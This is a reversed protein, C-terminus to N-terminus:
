RLRWSLREARSQKAAASEAFASILLEAMEERVVVRSVNEKVLGCKNPTRCKFTQSVAACMSLDLTTEEM